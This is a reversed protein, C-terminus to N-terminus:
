APDLVGGCVSRPEETEVVEINKGAIFRQLLEMDREYIRSEPNFIVHNEVFFRYIELHSDEFDEDHLTIVLIKDQPFNTHKFVSDLSFTNEDTGLNESTLKSRNTPHGHSYVVLMCPTNESSIDYRKKLALSYNNGSDSLNIQPIKTKLEIKNTAISYNGNSCFIQKHASAELPTM